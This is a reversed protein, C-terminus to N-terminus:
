INISIMVTKLASEPLKELDSENIIKKGGEKTPIYYNIVPEYGEEKLVKITEDRVDKTKKKGDTTLYGFIIESKKNALYVCILNIAEKRDHPCDDTDSKEKLKMVQVRHAMIYTIIASVNDRTLNEPLRWNVIVPKHESISMEEYKKRADSIFKKDKESTGTYKDFFDPLETLHGNYSDPIHKKDGSYKVDSIGNSVLFTMLFDSEEPSLRRVLINSNTAPNISHHVYSILVLQSAPDLGTHDVCKLLYSHFNDEIEKLKAKSM